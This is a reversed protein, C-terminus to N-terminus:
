QNLRPTAKAPWPRGSLKRIALYAQEAWHVIFNARDINSGALIPSHILRKGSSSSINVWALITNSSIPGEIEHYQDVSTKLDRTLSVPLLVDVSGAPLVLQPQSGNWIRIIQPKPYPVKVLRYQDFGYDLLKKADSFRYKESPGGLTIGALRMNDRKATFALNYGSEDIYGTKLGDAGPYAFLLRNRNIQRIGTTDPEHPYTFEHVSHYQKIAQPFRQLYNWVFWSLDRATSLNHEDYGSPEVFHTSKMGLAACYANMHAVFTEESGDVEIAIAMAADNGSDVALGLLLDQWTCTQRPGLFMLSSRVPMNEAWSNPHITVITELSIQNKQIFDLALAMVVLKTLSAPPIIEDANKQYIITGTITEFIMVSKASLEPQPMVRLEAPLPDQFTSSYTNRINIACILTPLGFSLLFLFVLKLQPRVFSNM